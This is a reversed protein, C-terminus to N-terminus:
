RQFPNALNRPFLEIETQYDIPQNDGEGYPRVSLRIRGNGEALYVAQVEEPTLALTVTTADANASAESNRVRQTGDTTTSAPGEVVDVITQSVALVEVNQLLTHVFHSDAKERKNPDTPSQFEVDYIVVVDVYDGPLVLGGANQVASINIGFGRMGEPIVYSLSRGASARGSGLDVVKNPLVQEGAAVPYRTVQGLVQDVSTYAMYSRVDGSVLKVQVMSATLTSRAPIDSKAVVVPVDTASSSSPSTDRSAAVYVLLAGILGLVVALVIFRGNGRSQSAASISQNM